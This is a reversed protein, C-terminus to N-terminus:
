EGPPVAVVPLHSTSVVRHTVSGLLMRELGRRGHTGMVILDAGLEDAVELITKAPAGRRLRTSAVDPYYEEFAAMQDRAAELIVEEPPRGPALAGEPLVYVPPEYTHLVHVEVALQDGLGLAYDLAKRSAASFDTPVLIKRVTAM